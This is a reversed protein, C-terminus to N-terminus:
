DDPPIHLTLHTVDASDPLHGGIVAIKMPLDRNVSEVRYRSVMTM